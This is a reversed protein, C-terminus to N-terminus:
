VIEGKRLVKNASVAGKLVQLDIGREEAIKLLASTDKPFCAGGFGYLGDPGPVKMHSNGIRRDSMMMRAIKNYNAGVSDAVLSLENVFSVKTALFANIAYKTLSAEELTCHHVDVLAPQSLRILREAENMYAKVSGGVISFKGNLYDQIANAATLFEPAHVLNRYKKSLEKYVLPPATCKSIIVGEYDKLNSLVSELISTDCSGDAGQPSPVCVFIGECSMLDAYTNTAGRSPDNDVLVLDILQQEFAEKVASGVYGVGVIGIKTYTYDGM